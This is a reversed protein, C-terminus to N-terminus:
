RPAAATIRPPTPGGGAPLLAASGGGGGRGSARRELDLRIKREAENVLDHIGTLPTRLDEAAILGLVYPVRLAFRNSSTEMDPWAFATFGAPPPEPEWIAGIAACRMAQTGR